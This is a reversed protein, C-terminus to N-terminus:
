GDRSNCANGIKCEIHNYVSEDVPGEGNSAAYLVSEAEGTVLATTLWRGNPASM